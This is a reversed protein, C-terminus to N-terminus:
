ARAKTEAMDNWVDQRTFLGGETEFRDVFRIGEFTTGDLWEGHLTGFAYITPGTAGAAVDFGDYSKRVFRYRPKSWAVLEELAHMPAQAPFHMMFGPALFTRARDLDRAEMAALFDRVMQVPDPLETAQTRHSGGRMYADSPIEHIMVTIGDLPAPLVQRVAGTLAHGLRAKVEGTYGGIVHMEIVPM